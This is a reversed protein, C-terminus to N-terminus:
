PELSSFCRWVSKFKHKLEDVVSRAVAGRGWPERHSQPEPGKPVPTQDMKTRHQLQHDHQATCPISVRGTTFSPITVEPAQSLFNM